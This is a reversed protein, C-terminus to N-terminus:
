GATAQAMVEAVFDDSRKELGEGVEFRLMTTVSASNDSLLRGVTIDPNKVFPQGLLTNEKLFKKVRGDVMKEIIEASKGSEAAQASYIERERTLVDGPMDDESICVPRTAAVHMAVDRGLEQGGSVSVLVGIRTGHLYGSVEGSAGSVVEFRRVAINEGIKAILAQRAAEVNQGSPLTTEGLAELSTPEEDMVVRSVDAAFQQFSDDKAVFDTECNVEIMVGKSADENIALQVVGEAAIRGAKKEASAAGKKRLLDIAADMDGETESLAKKCDMMGAGTRERLEKVQSATIVIDEKNRTRLSFAGANLARKPFRAV